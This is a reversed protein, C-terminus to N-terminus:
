GLARELWYANVTDLALYDAAGSKMAQVATEATDDSTLMVVQTEPQSEQLERLIDMGDPKPMKIDLLVVDPSFSKIKQVAGGSETETKVEFGAKKLSRSLMSIILDDDDLLFVKRTEKM